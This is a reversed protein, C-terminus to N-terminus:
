RPVGKLIHRVLPITRGPGISTVRAAARPIIDLSYFLYSSPRVGAFRSKPLHLLTNKMYRCSGAVQVRQLHNSVYYFEKYFIFTRFLGPRLSPPEHEGPSCYRHCARLWYIITQCLCTVHCDLSSIQACVRLGRRVRCLEAVDVFCQYPGPFVVLSGCLTGRATTM